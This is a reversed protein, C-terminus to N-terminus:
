QRPSIVRRADEASREAIAVAQVLAVLAALLAPPCPGPDNYEAQGAPALAAPATPQLGAAVAVQITGPLIRTDM